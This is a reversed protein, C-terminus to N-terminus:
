DWHLCLKPCVNTPRSTIRRSLVPDLKSHGTTTIAAPCLQFFSMTCSFRLVYFYINGSHMLLLLSASSGQDSISLVSTHSPSAWGNLCVEPSFAFNFSVLVLFILTGMSETWLRWCGTSHQNAKKTNQFTKNYPRINVATHTTFSLAAANVVSM